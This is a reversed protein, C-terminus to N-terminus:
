GNKRGSKRARKEYVNKEAKIDKIILFGQNEIEGGIALYDKSVDNEVTTFIKM